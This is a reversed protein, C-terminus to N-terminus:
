VRAYHGSPRGTQRSLSNGIRWPHSVSRNGGATRLKWRMGCGAPATSASTTTAKSIARYSAQGRVRALISLGRWAMPVTPPRKWVDYKCQPVAVAIAWRLAEALLATWPQLECHTLEAASDDWRLRHWRSPARHARLEMFGVRIAAPRGTATGDNGVTFRVLPGSTLDARVPTVIVGGPRAQTVWEYPFQGLRVSATALVRDFPAGSHQGAAGDATVVHVTPIDYLATRAHEALTPDVEVTTVTAARQALLAANYGTGTGIELVRHGDHIDLADLMGLMASPMSSSCTPRYGVQPWVTAGDDFQTVIVKNSYVADLWRGPEVARDLAVCAIDDDEGEDVWMRDPIFRERPVASFASVWPAPLQDSELLQDALTAESTATM